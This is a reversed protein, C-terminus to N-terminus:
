TATSSKIRFAKKSARTIQVAFEFSEKWDLMGRVGLKEIVKLLGREM